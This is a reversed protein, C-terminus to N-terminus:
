PNTQIFLKLDLLEVKKAICISVNEFDCDTRFNVEQETLDKLREDIYAYTQEKTM